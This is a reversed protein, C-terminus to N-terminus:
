RVQKRPTAANVKDCIEWFLAFHLLNRCATTTFHYYFDPHNVVALIKNIEFMNITFYFHNKRM